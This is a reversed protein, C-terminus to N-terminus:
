ERPKLSELEAATMGAVGSGLLDEVSSGQYRADPMAPDGIRAVILEGLVERIEYIGSPLQGPVDFPIFLGATKGKRVLLRGLVPFPNTKKAM